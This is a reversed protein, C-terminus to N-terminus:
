AFGAFKKLSLVSSVDSAKLADGKVRKRLSLLLESLHSTLKVHVKKMASTRVIVEVQSTNIVEKCMNQTTTMSLKFTPTDAGGAMVADFAPRIRSDTVAMDTHKPADIYNNTSAGFYELPMTVRGGKLVAKKVAKELTKKVLRFAADNVMSPVKDDVNVFGIRKLNSLVQKDSLFVVM